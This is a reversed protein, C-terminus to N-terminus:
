DNCVGDQYVESNYAEYRARIDTMDVDPHRECFKDFWVCGGMEPCGCRYICHPVLVDAIEPEVKHLERKFSKAYKRAESTAMKCLRKRWADILMQANAYGEFMVPADQPKKDRKVGTRDTRQSRIFKEFKHRAWEMAVWYPMMWMWSVNIKRIPTHEAIMLDRKFQASAERGSHKKGVTTRCANKVSKWSGDIETITTIRMM